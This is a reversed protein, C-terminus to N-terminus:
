CRHKIRFFPHQYQDRRCVYHKPSKCDIEVRLPLEQMIADDTRAENANGIDWGFVLEAFLMLWRGCGPCIVAGQGCVAQGHNGAQPRHPGNCEVIRHYLRRGRQIKGTSEIPSVVLAATPLLRALELM